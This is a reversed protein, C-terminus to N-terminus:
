FGLFQIALGCALITGGALAHSFRELKGLPLAKFGLTTLGVTILMTGITSAAFVLSVLLMGSTSHKVAPYMLLPILPECPGFIFVTFLIWPTISKKGEQHHVHLHGDQHSHPHEHERTCHDGDVHVHSHSHSKGRLARQLGWMGYVLGFAIMAWAALNGRFSEVVELRGVVVGLAIGVLGILISSGVHGIGCLFTIGLTKAMKWQRAKAMAAFPLYHDPGIVTHILGLSAATITLM